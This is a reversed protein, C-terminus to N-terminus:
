RLRQLPLRRPRQEPILAAARKGKSRPTLRIKGAKPQRHRIHRTHARLIGSWFRASCCIEELDRWALGQGRRSWPL